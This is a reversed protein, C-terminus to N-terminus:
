SFPVSDGTDANLPKSKKTKGGPFSLHPTSSPSPARSIIPQVTARWGGGFVFSGSRPATSSSVREARRRRRRWWIEDNVRWRGQILASPAVSSSKRNVDPVRYSIYGLCFFLFVEYYRGPVLAWSPSKSYCSWRSPFYFQSEMRILSTLHNNGQPVVGFGATQATFHFCLCGCATMIVTYYEWQVLPPVRWRRSPICSKMSIIKYRINM